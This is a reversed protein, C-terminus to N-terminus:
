NISPNYYFVFANHSVERNNCTYAYCRNSIFIMKIFRRFSYRFSLFFLLQFLHFKANVMYYKKFKAYKTFLESISYFTFFLCLHPLVLYYKKLLLVYLVFVYFINFLPLNPLQLRTVHFEIVAFRFLLISLRTQEMSFRDGIKWSRIENRRSSFVNM